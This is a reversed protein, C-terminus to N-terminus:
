GIQRKANGQSADKQLTDESPLYDDGISYSRVPDHLAIFFALTFLLFMFWPLGAREPTKLLTPESNMRVGIRSSQEGAPICRRSGSDRACQNHNPGFGCWHSWHLPGIRDRISRLVCSGR